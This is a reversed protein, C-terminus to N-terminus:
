GGRITTLLLYRWCYLTLPACLDHQDVALLCLKQTSSMTEEFMKCCKVRCKILKTGANSLQCLPLLMGRTLLRSTQLHFYCSALDSTLTLAKHGKWHKSVPPQTAPLVYLGYFVWEVLGFLSDELVSPPSGSPSSVSGPEGPLIAM